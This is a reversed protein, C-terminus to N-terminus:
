DAIPWLEIIDGWYLNTHRGNLEVRIGQVNHLHNNTFPHIDNGEEDSPIYPHDSDREDLGIFVAEDTVQNGCVGLHVKKGILHHWEKPTLGFVDQVNQTAQMKEGKELLYFGHM